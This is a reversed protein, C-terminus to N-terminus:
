SKIISFEPNLKLEIQNDLSYLNILDESDLVVFCNTCQSITKTHRRLTKVKAQQKLYAYLQHTKTCDQWNKLM